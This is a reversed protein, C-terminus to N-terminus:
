PIEDPHTPRATRAPKIFTRGDPTLHKEFEIAHPTSVGGHQRGVLDVRLLPEGHNDYVQYYAINGATDLRYLIENAGAVSPFRGSVQRGSQRVLAGLNHPKKRQIIM